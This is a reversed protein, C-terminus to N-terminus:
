GTTQPRDEAQPPETPPRPAQPPHAEQIRRLKELFAERRRVDDAVRRTADNQHRPGRGESNKLSELWSSLQRSVSLCTEVLSRVERKHAEFDPSAELLRLMSRVEGASGRAIYLFAILEDHTGREYGEAINNSISVVARELQDRLGPHGRLAGDKAMGLVEVGLDIAAKWVPLDEFERYTIRRKPEM